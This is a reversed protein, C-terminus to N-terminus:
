SYAFKWLISLCGYRSRRSIGINHPSFQPTKKITQVLISSPLRANLYRPFKNIDGLIVSKPLGYELMETATTSTNEYM